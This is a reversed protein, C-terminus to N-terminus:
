LFVIQGEFFFMTAEKLNSSDVIEHLYFLKKLIEDTTHHCEYIFNYKFLISIFFWVDNFFLNFFGM